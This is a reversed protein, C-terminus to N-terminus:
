NVTRQFSSFTTRISARAPLITRSRVPRTSYVIKGIACLLIQPDQSLLWKSPLTKQGEFPWTVWEQAASSTSRTLSRQKELVSLANSM